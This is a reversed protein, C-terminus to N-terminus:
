RQHTDFWTAVAAYDMAAGRWGHSRGPKTVLRATVGAARFRALLAESQSFPVVPDKTGHILLTPPDDKTVHSIPSIRALIRGIEARDTIRVYVNRRPDYHKFDFPARFREKITPTDTIRRAQEGWNLFDSPPFFAAVAQVRGDTREVPDAADPDGPKGATAIMLALHGGASRGYIGIRKPDISWRKQRHRVFRVARQVDPIAERVTFRPTSGHVVAFVTYGRDVLATIRSTRLGQPASFWGSSLVYVLGIGNPKQPRHVDLTLALGDKRGYVVDREQAASVAAVLLLSLLVRM